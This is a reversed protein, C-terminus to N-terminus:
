LNGQGIAIFSFNRDGLSGDSGGTVIKAQTATLQYIVANDKTNGNGGNGEWNPYNQTVTLAPIEDFGPEFKIVYLGAREKVCTWGQSGSLKSANGGNINGYLTM